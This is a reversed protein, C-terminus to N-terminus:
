DIGPTSMGWWAAAPCKGAKDTGPTPANAVKKGGPSQATALGLAVWLSKAHVHM